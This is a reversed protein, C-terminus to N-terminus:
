IVTITKKKVLAPLAIKSGINAFYYNIANRIKKPDHLVKGHDKLSSQLTASRKRNKRLFPTFIPGLALHTSAALFRNIINASQFNKQM